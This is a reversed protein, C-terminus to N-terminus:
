GNMVCEMFFRMGFRVGDQMAKRWITKVQEMFEAIESFPMGDHLDLEARFRSRTQSNAKKTVTELEVIDGNGIQGFQGAPATQGSGGEWLFCSWILQTFPIYSKSHQPAARDLM